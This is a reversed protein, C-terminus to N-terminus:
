IVEFDDDGVPRVFDGWNGTERWYDVLGLERLLEKFAPLMRVDRYIGRWLLFVLNRNRPALLFDRVLEFALEAELEHSSRESM